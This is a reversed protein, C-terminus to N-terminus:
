LLEDISHAINESLIVLFHEKIADIPTIGGMELIGVVKSNSMLPILLLYVENTGGLGTEIVTHPAKFYTNIIKMSSVCEGVLGEGISYELPHKGNDAYTAKLKIKDGEIIYFNGLQLTTYHTLSDILNKCLEDLTWKNQHLMESHNTLGNNIWIQNKLNEKLENIHENVEQLEINLLDEKKVYVNEQKDNNLNTILKKTKILRSNLLNLSSFCQFLEDYGRYHAPASFEGDTTKRLLQSLKILPSSLARKAYLMFFILSFIFFATSLLITKILLRNINKFLIKENMYTYVCWEGHELLVLESHYGDQNDNSTSLSVLNNHNFVPNFKREGIDVYDKQNPSIQIYRKLNRKVLINHISKQETRLLIDYISKMNLKAAILARHRTDLQIPYFVYCYYSNTNKNRPYVGSFTFYPIPKTLSKFDSTNLRHFLNNDVHNSKAIAPLTKPFILDGSPHILFIQELDSNATLLAIQRRFQTMDYSNTSDGLLKLSINSTAQDFLHLQSKLNELHKELQSKTVANVLESKEIHEQHLQKKYHRYFLYTISSLGMFLFIAILFTIKYTISKM